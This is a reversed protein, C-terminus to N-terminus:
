LVTNSNETYDNEKSAHYIWARVCGLDMRFSGFFMDQRQTCAFRKGLSFNM